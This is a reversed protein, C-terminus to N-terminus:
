AKGIVARSTVDTDVTNLEPAYFRISDETYHRMNDRLRNIGAPDHKIKGLATMQAVPYRYADYGDIIYLKKGGLRGYKLEFNWQHPCGFSNHGGNIFGITRSKDPTLNNSKDINKLISHVLADALESKAATQHEGFSGVYTTVKNGFADYITPTKTYLKDFKNFDVANQFNKSAFDKGTLASLYYAISGSWCSLRRDKSKSDNPSEEKINKRVEKALLDYGYESRPISADRNLISEKLYDSDIEDYGAARAKDGIYDGNYENNFLHDDLDFAEPHNPDRNIGDQLIQSLENQSLTNLDRSLLKEGANGGLAVGLYYVGAATGISIGAIKAIKKAKEYDENSLNLLKKANVKEHRQVKDAGQVRLISDVANKGKIERNSLNEEAAKKEATSHDKEKLPYPPGNRKGWKQGLIGHHYLEYKCYEM